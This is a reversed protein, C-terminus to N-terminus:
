TIPFAVDCFPEDPRQAEETTFYVERPAAAVSRDSADIWREVAAYAELIEPFQVQRRTLTTFAEAHAPEVRVQMGDAPQATGEFPLCVEVPGDSDNNVQGHYIVFPAGLQRAGSAQLQAAIAGMGQMIFDPLGEVTLARTTSMVQQEAVQRTDVGYMPEGRGELHRELVAVVRRRVEVDQETEAWFARVEVVAAEPELDLVNGIRELPMGLRRLMGILRARDVQDERYYRYGSDPDVHAPPLLGLRDYLRLAKLSLRARRSFAGISLLETTTQSM